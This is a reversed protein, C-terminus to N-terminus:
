SAWVAVPMVLHIECNEAVDMSVELRQFRNQLVRLLAIARV